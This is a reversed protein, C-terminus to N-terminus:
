YLKVLYQSYIIGAKTYNIIGGLPLYLRVLDTETRNRKETSDFLMFHTSISIRNKWWWVFSLKSEAEGIIKLSFILKKMGFENSNTTTPSSHLEICHIEINNWARCCWWILAPVGGDGPTCTTSKSEREAERTQATACFFLCSSKEGRVVPEGITCLVVLLDFSFQHNQIILINVNNNIYQIKTIKWDLIM